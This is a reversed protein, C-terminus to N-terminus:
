MLGLSARLDMNSVVHHVIYLEEVLASCCQSDNWNQTENIVYIILSIVNM